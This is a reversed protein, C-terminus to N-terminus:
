NSGYTSLTYPNRQRVVPLTSEGGDSAGSIVPLARLKDLIGRMPSVLMFGRATIPDGSRHERRVSKLVYSLRAQVPDGGLDTSIM